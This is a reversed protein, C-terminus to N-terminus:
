EGLCPLSPYENRVIKVFLADEAISHLRNYPDLTENRIAELARHERQHRGISILDDLDDM